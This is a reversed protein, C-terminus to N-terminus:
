IKEGKTAVDLILEVEGSGMGQTIHVEVLGCLASFGNLASVQGAGNQTAAMAVRQLNAHAGNALTGFHSDEDYPAEANDFRLSTLIEDVNDAVDLLNNLPDSSVTSPVAGSPFEDPWARSEIWSQTLSIRTWNGSAGLHQGVLMVNFTDAELNGSGPPNQTLTSWDIDSSHYDSYAWDGAPITIGAADVPLVPVGMQNNLYVKFDHYKGKVLGDVAKLGEDIHQDWMKKGRRWATRTVWTDPAVNIRVVSENNSDKILGGMVKAVQGQRVLRREQASLSKFLDIYYTGPETFLYRQRSVKSAM